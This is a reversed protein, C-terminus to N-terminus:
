SSSNTSHRLRQLRRDELWDFLDNGEEPIYESALKGSLDEVNLDIDTHEVLYRVVDERLSACAWHLATQNEGTLVNVDFDKELKAVFSVPAHACTYHWLTPHTTDEKQWSKPIDEFSPVFSLQLGTEQKWGELVRHWGNAIGHLVTAVGEHVHKHSVHWKDLLKHWKEINQAWVRLAQGSQFEWSSRRFSMNKLLDDVRKESSNTPPFSLLNKLDKAWQHQPLGLTSSSSLITKWYLESLDQDSSFAMSAQRRWPSQTWQNAMSYHANWSDQLVMDAVFDNVDDQTLFLGQERFVDKVSEHRDLVDQLNEMVFGTRVMIRYDKQGKPRVLAYAPHDHGELSGLLSVMADLSSWSIPYKM